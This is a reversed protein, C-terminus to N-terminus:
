KKNPLVVSNHHNRNKDPQVAPATHATKNTDQIVAPTTLSIRRIGVFRLPPTEPNNDFDLIRGKIFIPKDETINFSATYKDVKNEKKLPIVQRNDLKEIPTNDSTSTGVVIRLNTSMDKPSVFALVKLTYVGKHSIPVSFEIKENSHQNSLNWIAMKNWLNQTKNDKTLSDDIVQSELDLKLIVKDYIKDLIDPKGLYYYYSRSFQESSYHVSKFIEGYYNISDRGLIERPSAAISLSGDTLYMKYLIAAMDKEPIIDSRNSCGSLIIAGILFLFLSRFM